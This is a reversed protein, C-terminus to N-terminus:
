EHRKKSIFARVLAIDNEFNFVEKWGGEYHKSFLFLMFLGYVFYSIGSITAAAYIGYKPIYILDLIIILALSISVGFLNYTVKGLGSLYNATVSATMLLISGPLILLFCDYMLEFTEGYIWVFLRQGFIALFLFVVIGIYFCCRIIMGLTKDRRILNNSVTGSFVGSGIMSSFVQFTFILKSVQIYNGLEIKVKPSSNLKLILWYDIRYLLFLFISTVFTFASYRLIKNLQFPSLLQFRFKVIYKSHFIIMIALGQLFSVIFYFIIYDYSSIALGFIPASIIYVFVSFNSIFSIINPYSFSKKGYFLSTYYTSLLMGTIFLLSYEQLYTRKLSPIIPEILDFCSFFIISFCAIWFLATSVLANTNIEKSLSFYSLSSELNLSAFLILLSFFTIVYYIEGSESAGLIRATIINLFFISVYNLSRWIFAQYILKRLAM